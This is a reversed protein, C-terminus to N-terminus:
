CFTGYFDSENSYDDFNHEQDGVGGVPASTTAETEDADTVAETTPEASPDSATTAETPAVPQQGTVTGGVIMDKSSDYNTVFQKLASDVGYNTDSNMSAPFQARNVIGGGVSGAYEKVNAEVTEVPDPVALNAVALGTNDYTKGGQLAKVSSPVEENRSTALYADFQTTSDTTSKGYYIPENGTGHYEIPDSGEIINNYAKIIGGDEGSFTGNDKVYGTADMLDSGQMSSLMPHKCNKFVNNEVFASSQYATGVGYKSVGDYLNNYVHVSMTRIRPHRSDSHDFWNHHYAIFNPGSESKMGCLSSKGSDWFHNYSFECYQSNNKVDLSGDGKAQDADGGADGYYFDVNHVWVYKNKSQISVGDDSFNSIGLNKIEVNASKQIDFGEKVVADEGVGEFTIFMDKYDKNAKVKIIGNPHVTGIIRICLPTPNSLKGHVKESTIGSDGFGSGSLGGNSYSVTNFNDDTVYIVKANSKLTGDSNYAGPTSKNTKFAFGDRKYGAVNINSATADAIVSGSSGYAEVRHWKMETVEYSVNYTGESLGLIDARWYSSYKRILEDDIRTFSGSGKQYSVVYQVANAVPTWEIYAGEQYGNSETITIGAAEVTQVNAVKAPNIDAVTVVSVLMTAALLSSLIRKLSKSM